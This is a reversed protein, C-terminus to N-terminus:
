TLRRRLEEPLVYRQLEREEEETMVHNVAIESQMRTDAGSGIVDHAYIKSSSCSLSSFSTAGYAYQHKM